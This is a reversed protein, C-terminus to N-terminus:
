KSSMEVEYTGAKLLFHQDAKDLLMKLKPRMDNHFDNIIVETPLFSYVNLVRLDVSNYSIDSEVYEYLNTDSDRSAVNKMVQLTPKSVEGEENGRRQHTAFKYFRLWSVLTRLVQRISDDTTDNNAVNVKLFATALEAAKVDETQVVDKFNRMEIDNFKAIPKFAVKDDEFRLAIRVLDDFSKFIPTPNQMGARTDKYLCNVTYQSVGGPSLATFKRLDLYQAATRMDKSMEAQDEIYKSEIVLGIEESLRDREVRDQEETEPKYKGGVWIVKNIGQKKLATLQNDVTNRSDVLSFNVNPFYLKFYRLKFVPSLPTLPSGQIKQLIVTHDCGRHSAEALITEILVRHARTPPQGKIFAFVHCDSRPKLSEEVHVQLLETTTSDIGIEESFMALRKEEEIQENLHGSRSNNEYM